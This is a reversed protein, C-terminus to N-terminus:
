EGPLSMASVAAKAKDNNKPSDFSLFLIIVETCVARERVSPLIGHRVALLRFFTFHLLIFSKPVQAMNETRSRSRSLSLM